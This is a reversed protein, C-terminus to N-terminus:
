NTARERRSTVIYNPDGMGMKNTDIENKYDGQIGTYPQQRAALKEDTLFRRDGFEPPRQLPVRTLHGIPWIGRLDPEGWETMPPQWESSAGGQPASDKAQPASAALAGAAFTAALASQLTKVRTPRAASSRGYRRPNDFVAFGLDIFPANVYGRRRVGL